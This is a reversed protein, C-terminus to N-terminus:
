SGHKAPPEPIPMWHSVHQIDHQAYQNEYTLWKGNYALGGLRINQKPFPDARLNFMTDPPYTIYFLVIESTDPLRDEVSVWRYCIGWYADQPPNSGCGAPKFM